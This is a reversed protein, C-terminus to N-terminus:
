RLFDKGDGLVKIFSITYLFKESNWSNITKAALRVM